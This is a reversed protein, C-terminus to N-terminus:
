VGWCCYANPSKCKIQLMNKLANNRQTKLTTTEKYIIICYYHKCILIFSFIIYTHLDRLLNNTSQPNLKRSPYPSLSPPSWIPIGQPGPGYYFYKFICLISNTPHNRKNATKPVTFIYLTTLNIKILEKWIVEGLSLPTLICCTWVSKIRVQTSEERIKISCGNNITFAWHIM